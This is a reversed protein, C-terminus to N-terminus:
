SQYNNILGAIYLQVLAVDIITTQKDQNVDTLELQTPSLTSLSALYLQILAVDFISIQEDLNIDGYLGKKVSKFAFLVSDLKSLQNQADLTIFEYTYSADNQLIPQLGDTLAAKAKFQITFLLVNGNLKNAIDVYNLTIQGLVNSNSTISNNLFTSKQIELFEFEQHNYLLRMQFGVLDTANEIQVTISFTANPAIYVIEPNSVTVTTVANVSKRSFLCVVIFLLFLLIIKKM